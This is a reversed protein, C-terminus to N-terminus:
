KFYFKLIESGYNMIILAAISIFPGFPIYDKRGKIKLIILIISVISGIIFSLLSVMLIYKWGLWLGLVAMLKIDGGGMSGNSVIAILLFLGGGLLFGLAGDLLSIKFNDIFIFIISTILGFIILEDPIEQTKLDIFSIVILLCSIISYEV